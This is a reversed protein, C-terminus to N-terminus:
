SGFRNGWTKDLAKLEKNQRTSLFSELRHWSDSASKMTSYQSQGNFWHARPDRAQAPLNQQSIRQQFVEERPNGEPIAANNLISQFHDRKTMQVDEAVVERRAAPEAVKREEKKQGM